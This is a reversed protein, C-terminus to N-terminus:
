PRALWVCARAVDNRQWALCFKQAHAATPRWRCSSRQGAQWSFRDTGSAGAVHYVAELPLLQDREIGGQEMLEVKCAQATIAALRGSRHCVGERAVETGHFAPLVLEDRHAVGEAAAGPPHQEYLLEELHCDAGIQLVDGM